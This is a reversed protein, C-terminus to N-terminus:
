VIWVQIKQYLATHNPLFFLFVFCLMPPILMFDFAFITAISNTASMNAIAITPHEVLPVLPEEPFVASSLLADGLAVGSTSVDSASGLSSIVSAFFV